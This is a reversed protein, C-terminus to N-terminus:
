FIHGIGFYFMSRKEGSRRDLKMGWDVRILLPQLHLRIGIGASKRLKFINCDAAGAFVNGWDTFGVFSILPLVQWRLEQRVILLADGGSALGNIADAPGVEDSTFGRIANRGSAYFKEAPSLERGREKVLGVGLSTAWTLHPAARLYFDFQGSYRTFPYDSGMFPAAHQISASIFFGKGPNFINDRNDDYYGITVHAIDAGPAAAAPDQKNLAISREWTYNWSFVSSKWLNVQQQVTLGQRDNRFSSEEKRNSFLSVITNVKNFPFHPFRYYGRADRERSGWQFGAGLSHGAGFLNRSEGELRAGFQSDTAYLGGVKLRYAPSEDVKIRVQFYKKQEAGKAGEDPPSHPPVARTEALEFDILDFIGLDYLKKRSRNIEYLDVIDGAKFTLERVIVSERTKKNGSIKIESIVGRFGESISFEIDALGKEAALVSRVEAQCQNFGKKRYYEEIKAALDAAQLTFIPAGAKLKIVALLEPESVLRLGSFSISGIRFLAGEEIHFRIKATRQLDQFSVRPPSIKVNFFGKKKYFAELKKRLASGDPLLREDLRLRNLERLVERSPVRRNGTFDFESRKFKPGRDISFTVLTRQDNEVRHSSVRAQYYKKRFYFRRLEDSVNSVRQADFQGDLWRSACKKRLARTIGEAQFSLFVKAGADIRYVVTVRGDAPYYDASIKVSLYDNKRYLRRIQERDEQFQTFSFVHGPKQKIQELVLPLALVPEGEIRIKDVLLPRPAPDSGAKRKVADQLSQFRLQYQVGMTYLDTSSKIGQLNLNKLPKYNLMWTRNQTQRLGQSYVLELKPAINKGITIKAGPDEKSSLLSGDIRFSRLDLNKKFLEEMKGTVAYSVYNLATNGTEDLISGSLEDATKGTALLSVISQESLPPVSSFSAIFTQPTGNLSLSIDYAGIQTRSDIHFDPEIYNPNVFNIQGKEIAFIRNGFFISGGEKVVIRGSLLPHYAKGGVTLEGNLEARSVNNDLVIARPTRLQLELRLRRAFGADEGVEIAEKKAFLYEYLYSGVRFSENYHGGNLDINGKLLYDPQSTLLQLQGSIDTFLGKPFNFKVGAMQLQLEVAPQKQKNFAVSGKTEITGGNLNGTLRELVFKGNSIDVVGNLQNLFLNAAAFQLTNNKAEVKGNWEVHKMTGGINMELAMSGSGALEPFFGGLLRADWKGKVSFNLPKEKQLGVFGSVALQLDDQGILVVEQLVVRNEKSVIQIPGDLYFPMGNISLDDLSLTATGALDALDPKNGKLSFKGSVEGTANEPLDVALFTELIALPCHSITLDIGYSEGTLPGPPNGAPLKLFSLPVTGHGSVEGDRIRFRLAQLNLVNDKMELQLQMGTLPIGGSSVLLRGQEVQISGSFAPATVSGKIAIRADLNGDFLLDPLFINLFDGAGKASVMIEKGPGPELSLGGSAHVELQDLMFSVDEVVLAGSRYALRLPNINRMHRNGSVMLLDSMECSISLSDRFQLPLFVAQVKGSATGSLRDRIPMPLLKLFEGISGNRTSVEIKTQFPKRRDMSGSIESHSSPILLLFDIKEKKSSVKGQVNGLQMHKVNFDAISFEGDVSTSLLLPADARKTLRVDLDLIGAVPPLAFPLAGALQALDLQASRVRVDLRQGASGAPLTGNVAVMGWTQSIRLDDIRLVQNKLILSGAFELPSRTLNKIKGRTFQAQLVPQAMTGSIKAALLMEGDIKKGALSRFPEGFPSLSLLIGRLHDIKGNVFGSLRDQVINFEGQISNGRSQLQAKKVLIAGQDFALRLDGALAVGEQDDPRMAKPKFQANLSGRLASRAFTSFSVDLHGSGYSYIDAPLVGKLLSFDLDKWNLLLHHPTKEALRSFEGHGFIEGALASAHIEKVKLFERDQIFQLGFRIRGQRSLERNLNGPPLLDALDGPSLEGRVRMDSKMALWNNLIGSFEVSSKEMQMFAQAIALRQHSIRGKLRLESIAKKRGNFFLEGPGSNDVLLEHDGEGKSRLEVNLLPSLLTMKDPEDSWFVQMEKMTLRDFTFEPIATMETSPKIVPLNGSGDKLIQILFRPRSFYIQRFHIKKGMLLAPTVRIVAKEAKLFPRGPDKGLAALVPQEMSFRLSFLNFDSTAASVSCGFNEALYNNVASLVFQNIFLRYLVFIIVLLSVASFVAIRAKKGKM